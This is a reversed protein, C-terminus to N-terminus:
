RRKGSVASGVLKQEMEDVRRLLIQISDSMSALQRELKHIDSTEQRLTELDAHTLRSMALESRLAKRM